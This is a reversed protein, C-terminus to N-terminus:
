KGAGASVGAAAAKLANTDVNLRLDAGGSVGNVAGASNTSTCSGDLAFNNQVNISSRWTIMPVTMPANITRCGACSLLMLPLILVVAKRGRSCSFLQKKM